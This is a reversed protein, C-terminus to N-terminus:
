EAVLLAHPRAAAEAREHISALQDAQAPRDVVSYELGWAQLIPEAYRPATDASGQLRAFYSRCGVILFLPIGLDFLINRLADGAEYFGTCQVAVIPRAGGLWLGGAIGIAEGERTPRVVVLDPANSVEDNWRGLATDPIWVLHSIRRRRFFAVITKGSIPDTV